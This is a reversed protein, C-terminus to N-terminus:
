SIEILIQERKRKTTFTWLLLLAKPEWPPGNEDSIEQGQTEATHCEPACYLYSTHKTQSFSFSPKRWEADGDNLWYEQWLRDLYNNKPMEDSVRMM